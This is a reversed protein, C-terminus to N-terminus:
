AGHARAPPPALTLVSPVSAPEALRLLAYGIGALGSMLGPTETGQPTGCAWGNRDIDDLIAGAYRGADELLSTNELADAAEFLFELNGLDGHCLSHNQGFGARLTIKTAAEIETRLQEDEVHRLAHSRSLGIGPAGHCWTVMFSPSSTEFGKGMYRYDPWNGAEPSFVGREYEFARLACDKFRAEGSAAWLELLAHGIGAAGHSFGTLPESATIKSEWAVGRGAPRARALLHDGCKIALALTHASSTSRYLALLNLICGASGSLLDLTEDKEILEPLLGTLSDALGLLSDDRWMSGTHALAHILGGLGSYGGVTHQAFILESEERHAEIRDRVMWMIRRALATYREEKLAEGAYALFLSVGLTGNYIEDVLPLLTWSKEGIFSLGIWNINSEDRIALADLRDAVDRVGALLRERTAARGGAELTMGAGNHRAIGAELSAMSATIFWEQRTLDDVSLQRIRNKVGELGPEAYFDPIRENNSTWLDRSQPRSSFFPIDGNELDRIEFPVARSLEPTRRTQDWLRDYLRRRDLADRLVDPHYGEVLFTGYIRTPRLIARVEDDGFPSLLGDDAVLKDRERLLLKYIERFGTIIDDTYDQLVIEDEKLSPRNQSGPMEVPKRVAKMEDTSSNEVTLVPFPSLQGGTGGLGSLDVGDGASEDLSWRRQPLLGIRMVSNEIARSAPSYASQEPSDEKMRPHFLSELDILVPHEGSAILNEYHFDTAELAYLLALLGGQRRYFRRVAAKDPCEGGRVFEVWGYEGRDIVKLTRFPPHDGQRNLWDLLENFHIDVSLSHPKYVVKFGSEFTLVMVSRGERHTDGVGGSVEKLLGPDADPALTSVIENWDACLRAILDLRNKAWYEITRTLQRTLVPYEILIPLVRERREILDRFYKFRDEPTAGVLEGRLRAVNLELLTTRFSQTVLEQILANVFHVTVAAEDFMARPYSERLSDFGERLRGLGQEILPAIGKVFGDAQLSYGSARTLQAGREEASFAEAISKLWHPEAPLRGALSEPTAGLLSAFEDETLREAELRQAFCAEDTFPPQARWRRLRKDALEYNIEGKLRETGGLLEARENLTMAKLWNPDSFPPRNLETSM